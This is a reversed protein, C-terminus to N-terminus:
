PCCSQGSHLGGDSICSVNRIRRSLCRPSRSRTTFQGFRWPHGVQRCSSRYRSLYHRVLYEERSYVGGNFTSILALPLMKREDIKVVSRLFISVRCPLRTM